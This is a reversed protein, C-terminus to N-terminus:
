KESKKNKNVPKVLENLKYKLLDTENYTTSVYFGDTDQYKFPFEKINDVELIKIEFHNLLDFDLKLSANNQKGYKAETYFYTFKTTSISCDSTNTVKFFVPMGLKTVETLDLLIDKELNILTLEDLKEFSTNTYYLKDVKFDSLKTIYRM